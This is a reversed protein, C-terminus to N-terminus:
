KEIEKRIKRLVDAPVDEMENKAYVTLLWIQNALSRYFYIIRIGERKGRGEIMWRVKRLGGSSPILDGSEPYLALHWQLFSYEEDNTLLPRLIICTM